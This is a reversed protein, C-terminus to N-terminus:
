RRRTGRPLAHLNGFPKRKHATGNFNTHLRMKNGAALYRFLIKSVLPLETVRFPTKTHIYMVHLRHSRTDQYDAKKTQKHNTLLLMLPLLLLLLLATRWVAYGM